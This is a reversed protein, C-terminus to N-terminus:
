PTGRAKTASSPARPGLRHRLRKPADAPAPDLPTREGSAGPSRWAFGREARWNRSSAWPRETTSRARVTGHDSRTRTRSEPRRQHFSPGEPGACTLRVSGAGSSCRRGRYLAHRERTGPGTTSPKRGLLLAEVEAPDVWVTAETTRGLCVTAAVLLVLADPLSTKADAGPLHPNRNGCSGSRFRCRGRRFPRNRSRRKRCTQSRRLRHLPHRFGLSSRLPHYRRFRRHDSCPDLQRSRQRHPQAEQPSRQVERAVPTEERPGHHRDPLTPAAAGARPGPGSRLAWDIVILPSRRVPGSRPGSCGGTPGRVSPRTPGRSTMTGYDPARPVPPPALTARGGREPVTLNM